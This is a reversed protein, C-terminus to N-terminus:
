FPLMGLIAEVNKTQFSAALAQKQKKTYEYAAIAMERGSDDWHNKLDNPTLVRLGIAVSARIPYLEASYAQEEVSFSTLRVPIIRGPGWVFLVIPVSGRPLPEAQAAGAEGGSEGIGAASGGSGGTASEALTSGESRRLGGLRGQDAPYLLMELAALRDAVGSIVTVLDKRFEQMADAADLELDLTFSEPPDAPQSTEQEPTGESREAEPAPPQWPTLTRTLTEPNYQFVIIHPVSAVLRQSFEILAGKQRPPRPRLEISPVSM